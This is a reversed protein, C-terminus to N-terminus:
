EDTPSSKPGLLNFSTVHCLFSSISLHCLLPGKLSLKNFGTKSLFNFMILCSSSHMYLPLFFFPSFVKLLNYHRIACSNLLKLKVYQFLCFFLEYSGNLRVRVLLKLYKFIVYRPSREATQPPIHLCVSHSGSRAYGQMERKQYTCGPQQHLPYRTILNNYSTNYNNDLVWIFYKKNKKM